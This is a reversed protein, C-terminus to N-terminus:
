EFYWVVRKLIGYWGRWLVVDGNEVYWVVRKLTCLVGEEFYRLATNMLELLLIFGGEVWDRDYCAFNDHRIWCYFIENAFTHYIHYGPLSSRCRSFRIIACPWYSSRRYKFYNTSAILSSFVHNEALSNEGRVHDFYCFISLFFFDQFIGFFPSLMSNQYNNLRRVYM